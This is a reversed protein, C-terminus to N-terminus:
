EDPKRLIHVHGTVPHDSQMRLTAETQYEVQLGRARSTVAIYEPHHAFRGTTMLRYGTENLRETTFIFAGGPRLAAAVAQMLDELDGTYVLVDAAIILDFDSRQRRLFALMDTEYLGDYALRKAAERLMARSLDVGIMWQVRNKLLVGCIGTGCGLDLAQGLPQPHRALHENLAASVLNPAAYALKRLLHDDFHDAYGDFLAQVYKRPARRRQWGFRALHPHAYIDVLGKLQRIVWVLLILAAVYWWSLESLSM